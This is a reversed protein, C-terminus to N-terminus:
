NIVPRRSNRLKQRQLIEARVKEADSLSNSNQTPAEEEFSADPDALVERQTRPAKEFSVVKPTKLLGQAHLERNADQVARRFALARDEDNYFTKRLENDNYLAMATTFLKGKQNSLTLDSKMDVQGKDDYVVYDKALDLLAQNERTAKTEADRQAKVQEEQVAKIAQEKELRILYRTAAIEEKANGEERMKLIYAEVQELSPPATDDKPVATNATTAPNARLRALEAEAEALKEEASKQKAVVKDIRKQVSEKIKAIPDDAPTETVPEAVETAEVTEEVSPVENEAIIKKEIAERPNEILTEADSTEVKNPVEPVKIADTM